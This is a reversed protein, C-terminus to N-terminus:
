VRYSRRESGKTTNKGYPWAVTAGQAISAYLLDAGHLEGHTHTDTSFFVGLTVM